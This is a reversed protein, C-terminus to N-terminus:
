AVRAWFSALAPEVCVKHLCLLRTTLPWGEGSQCLPWEPTLQSCHRPCVCPHARCSCSRPGRFDADLAVLMPSM